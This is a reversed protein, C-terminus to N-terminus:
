HKIKIYLLNNKPMWCYPKKKQYIGLNKEYNNFVLVDFSLISDLYKTRKLLDIFDESSFLVKLQSFSGEKYISRIRRGMEQQQLSIQAESQSINDKLDRIKSKNIKLNWDYIKLERERIKLQGDLIRMKKLNSYEKKDM